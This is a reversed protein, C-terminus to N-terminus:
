RKRFLKHFIPNLEETFTKYFEAPFGDLRPSKKLPLSKITTEIEKSAIPQNLNEIDEQNLKPLNYTDLFRDIEEM